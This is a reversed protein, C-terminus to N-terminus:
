MRTVFRYLTTGNVGTGKTCCDYVTNFHPSVSFPIDIVYGTVLGKVSKVLVNFKFKSLPWNAEKM